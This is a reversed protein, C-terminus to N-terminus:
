NSKRQIDGYISDKISKRSSNKKLKWKWKRIIGGLYFLFKASLTIKTHTWYEPFEYDYKKLFPGFVFLALSQIDKTYYESLDKKKGDTKNEVPLDKPNKIGSKKLADRSKKIIRPRKVM